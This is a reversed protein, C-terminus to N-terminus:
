LKKGKQKGVSQGIEKVLEGVKDGFQSGGDDMWKSYYPGGDYELSDLYM